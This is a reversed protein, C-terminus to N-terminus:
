SKRKQKSCWAYKGWFEKLWLSESKMNIWKSKSSHSWGQPLDMPACHQVTCTSVPLTCLPHKTDQGLSVKWTGQKLCLKTVWDPRLLVHMNEPDCLRCRLKLKAVQCIKSIMTVSVTYLLYNNSNDMFDGQRQVRTQSDSGQRMGLKLTAKFRRFGPMMFRPILELGRPNQSWGVGFFYDELHDETDSELLCIHDLRSYPPCLHLEWFWM